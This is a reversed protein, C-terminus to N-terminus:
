SESGLRYTVKAGFTRPDGPMAATFGASDQFDFTANNYHNNLLNNVWLGLDLNTGMIGEWNLRMNLVGYSPVDPAFGKNLVDGRESANFYSVNYIFPGWSANLPLVYTAGLSFTTDPFPYTSGTLDKNNYVIVPFGPASASSGNAACVPFAPSCADRIIQDPFADYRLYTYGVSGSLTLGYFPRAVVTAETGRVIAKGSNEAANIPLGTAPDLKSISVAINSYWMQYGDVEASFSMGGLKFNSKVGVEIDQVIEDDNVSAEDSTARASLFGTRYGRRHAVYGMLDDTAQYKLTVNYSPADGDRTRSARCDPNVGAFAAHKSTPLVNFNCNTPFVLQPFRVDDGYDGFFGISRDFLQINRINRYVAERHDWTYRMGGTFTLRKIVEYDFQGYLAFSRASMNYINFFRQGFQAADSNDHGEYHGFFGGAIWKLDGGFHEGQAQLEETIQRLSASNNTDLLGPAVSAPIGLASAGFSTGDINEFYNQRVQRYGFINKLTVGFMEATTTNSGGWNLTKEFPATGLRSNAKTVHSDFDGWGLSRQYAQDALLKNYFGPVLMIPINHLANCTAQGSGPPGGADNPCNPAPIVTGTGGRPWSAPDNFNFGAGRFLLATGHVDNSQYDFVSLNEVHEFPKWLMSGRVAWDDKDDYDRDDAINTWTGDRQVHRVGIRFALDHRVPANVVGEAEILGYDGGGVTAYGGYGNFNPKRTNILVAGAVTNRGQLTGQPGKLVQVNDLDFFGTNMAYPSNIPVENLIFPVTPDSDIQTGGAPIGRISVQPTSERFTGPVISVSPAVQQLDRVEVIGKSELAVPDFAQVAVPVEVLTEQRRRATVTVEEVELGAARKAAPAPRGAPGAQAVTVAGKATETKNAAQGWSAAPMTLGLAVASAAAWGLMVTTKM